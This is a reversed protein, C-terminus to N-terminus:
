HVADKGGLSFTIRGTREERSYRYELTDVLGRVLHLGLGGPERRELPAGVDPPPARQPDFYEADPDTLTVRVGRALQRIDISIMTGSARGYKVINTFLEEVVLDVTRRLGPQM